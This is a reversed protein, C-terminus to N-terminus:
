LRGVELITRVADGLGSDIAHSALESAVGEAEGESGIAVVLPAMQPHEIRVDHRGLSAVLRDDKGSGGELVVSLVTDGQDAAEVAPWAAAPWKLRAALWGALLLGLTEDGRVHTITGRVPVSHLSKAAHALSRRLTTLRRWNLDALGVGSTPEVLRALAKMGGPVDRWQRSDYVLLRGLRTVELMPPVRSLDEAWWVATPVGGRLIRRLISPLSAEACASRVVVEEIAYQAGPPGFVMVGVNASMPGSPIQGGCEHEIVIVRSPHRAVVAELIPDSGRADSASPARDRPREHFVILNSMVARAVRTQRAVDRWLAALDGEIAEPRSPRWANFGSSSM